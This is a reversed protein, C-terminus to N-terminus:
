EDDEAFVLERFYIYWGDKFVVNSVYFYVTFLYPDSAPKM